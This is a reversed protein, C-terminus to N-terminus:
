VPATAGELWAATWSDVDRVLAAYVRAHYANIWARENASLMEPMILRRDIPALTLTEFGMMEREGAGAKALPTVLLVNEIRIGYAGEKYFGPENSILMGPHLEGMGARSVSQPGEHVSLYSGIGHGTGHDYDEGMEWLARRAFADIDIGRTGKPFRLTAIAIHGKLVGTFHRRMDESPDGIAVTRTIDTTGDEYQAGSDILFLEGPALKRNTKKTVRYHVIAGNPGSGSITPFSLDLLRNTNRRYAELREVAAIEDLTGEASAGDLWALFRSVAAGDRLHAARAGAIEADNKIAKPLACPDQGRVMVKPGLAKEFAYAAWDPNLRVPKSASKLSRLRAQLEKPSIIKAVPNLHTRVEPPIRAPDIYLEVKGSQPVIAFARVIPNHAVDAGRINLLWCLSDPMTVITASQGAEKLVKQVDAVKEAAAKGAFALAHLHVLGQPPAPRAEAWVTDILNEALPVLTLGKAELASKRNAIESATHLWPDFGISQGKSLKEILWESTRERKAIEVDFIHTDTEARAQVSYRGDTILVGARRTLVAIGASGTFGTLWRLREASPPVYEGQHEDARPVILAELGLASMRARVAKVREAVHKAGSSNEFTQFM